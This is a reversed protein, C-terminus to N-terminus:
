LRRSWEPVALALGYDSLTDHLHSLFVSVAAVGRMGTLPRIEAMRTECRAKLHFLLLRPRLWDCGTLRSSVTWPWNHRFISEIPTLPPFSNQARPARPSADRGRREVGAACRPIHISRAKYVIKQNGTAAALLGQPVLSTWRLALPICRMKTQVKRKRIPM